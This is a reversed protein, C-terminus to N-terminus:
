RGNLKPRLRMRVRWGGEARPGAELEGGYAVARERMGHLGRGDRPPSDSRPGTDTAELEVHDLDCRVSLSVATPRAAHKLTNTLAEQAVRFVALQIGEPLVRPDGEIELHVPVGAARVREVIKELEELRPQPQLPRQGTGARLIGLLRRMELLADRGTASIQTTAHAAQQPSAEAAYSAGDALAVMVSLNHSVIDHMERAIRNREAAAAFRGEQDREFELRAAREHLSSLLARRQRVTIGLVGAAMVLGSLGIWVKVPDSPAWKAAAIVAGSELVAGAVAFEMLSGRLAVGYLAVLLAADALQPDAILWQVGAILALGLFVLMPRSRRLLLPLSLAATFALQQSDLREQSWLGAIGAVAVALAVTVDSLLPHESVVQGSREAVRQILATPWRGLPALRGDASRDIRSKARAGMQDNERALEAVDMRSATM